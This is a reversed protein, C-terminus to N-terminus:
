KSQNNNRRRLLTNPDSLCYTEAEFVPPYEMNPYDPTEVKTAPEVPTSQPIISSALSTTESSDNSMSTTM